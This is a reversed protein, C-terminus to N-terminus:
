KQIETWPDIFETECLVHSVPVKEQCDPGSRELEIMGSCDDITVSLISITGCILGSWVLALEVSRDCWM